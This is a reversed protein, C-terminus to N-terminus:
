SQIINIKTDKEIHSAINEKWSLTTQFSRRVHAPSGRRHSTARAVNCVSLWYGRTQLRPAPHAM